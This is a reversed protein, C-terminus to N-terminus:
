APEREWGVFEGGNIDAHIIPRYHPLTAGLPVPAFADCLAVYEVAHMVWLAEARVVIVTAMIQRVLRPNDEILHNEIRFAGLRRDHPPPPTILSAGVHGPEFVPPKDTWHPHKM